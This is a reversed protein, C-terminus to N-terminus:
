KPVSSELVTIKAELKEIRKTLSNPDAEPLGTISEIIEYGGSSYVAEVLPMATPAPINVTLKHANKQAAFDAVAADLNFGLKNITEREIKVM